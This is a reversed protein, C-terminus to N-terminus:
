AYSAPSARVWHPATKHVWRSQGVCVIIPRSDLLWVLWVFFVTLQAAKYIPNKRVKITLLALPNTTQTCSFSASFRMKEQVDNSKLLISSLVSYSSHRCKHPAHPFPHQFTLTPSIPLLPSPSTSYSRPTPPYLVGM